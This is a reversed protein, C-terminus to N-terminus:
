TFNQKFFQALKSFPKRLNSIGSNRIWLRNLYNRLYRSYSTVIFSKEYPFILLLIVSNCFAGERFCCLIFSIVEDELIYKDYKEGTIKM